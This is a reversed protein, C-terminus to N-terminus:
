TLESYFAKQGKSRPDIAATIPLQLWGNHTSADSHQDEELATCRKLQQAM